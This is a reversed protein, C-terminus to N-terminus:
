YVIVENLHAAGLADRFRQVLQEGARRQVRRDRHGLSECRTQAICRNV